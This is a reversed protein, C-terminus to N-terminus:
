LGMEQVFRSIKHINIAGWSTKRTLSHSICVRRRARTVGVYALRRAEEVDADKRTGPIVQDEFGVLYVVDWERGKAGHLTAVTVGDVATAAEGREKGMALVLQLVDSGAPLSRQITSVLMRSEACIKERQLVNGISQLDALGFGLLTHYRNLSVGASRAGLLGAHALKRADVGDGRATMKAVVYFLALTDNEPNVLLEVLTKALSWDAPLSSKAEEGVAFGAVKLEARFAHCIDNTRALIAVASFDVGDEGLASLSRIVNAIEDGPNRAPQLFDVAGGAGKVSITRKPIRGVNHEILSQAADCIESCSRYNAELLYVVCDKAQEAMMDPRGGRFAYISQDQDGVYFKSGMPLARYIAWDIAASDQVEDVFLHTFGWGLNTAGTLLRLFESLIMDFDVMGSERLVEYYSRVVMEDLSLRHNPPGLSAGAVKLKLLGPVKAKCGLSQARSALLDLCAEEGILALREGYGIAAGHQKLMRLAFGHLTGCYGLRITGAAESGLSLRQSLEDAGANTFTM